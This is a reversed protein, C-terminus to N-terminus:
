GGAILDSGSRILSIAALHPSRIFPQFSHHHIIKKDARESHGAIININKYRDFSARQSRTVIARAFGRRLSEDNGDAYAVTYLYIGTIFQPIPRLIFCPSFQKIFSANTVGARSGM